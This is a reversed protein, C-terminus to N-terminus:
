CGGGETDILTRVTSKGVELVSYSEAEYYHKYAVVLTQGNMTLSGLPYVKVLEMGDCDSLAVHTELWSWQSDESQVWAWGQFLTLGWCDSDPWDSPREYKKYAEIYYFYQGDLLSGSRYVSDVTLAAERRRDRALPHGRYQLRASSVAEGADVRRSIEADELTEFLEKMASTARRKETPDTTLDVMADLEQPNSVAIGLPVSHHNAVPKKANDTEVGWRSQCHSGAAVPKLAKLTTSTGDTYRVFWTRPIKNGGTWSPPIDELRTIVRESEEGPKPWPNLFQGQDYLAIPALTGDPQVLAIWSAQRDKDPIPNSPCVLFPSLLLASLIFQAVRM